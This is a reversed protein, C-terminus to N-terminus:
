PGRRLSEWFQRPSLVAIGQYDGLALLDDDGTIIADAFTARALGLVHLDNRDRCASTPVPAAEGIYTEERLFAETAEISAASLKLKRRLAGAIEAMLRDSLIVQHSQLCAEFVAYCLGRAAFAGVLVNADLVVRM